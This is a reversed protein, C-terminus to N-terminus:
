DNCVMVVTLATSTFDTTVCLSKFRRGAMLAPVHRWFMITTPM